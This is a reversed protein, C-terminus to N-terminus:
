DFAYLGPCAGKEPFFPAQGWEKQNQDLIAMLFISDSDDRAGMPHTAIEDFYVSIAENREGLCIDIPL